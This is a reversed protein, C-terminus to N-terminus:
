SRHFVIVFQTHKMEDADTSYTSCKWNPRNEFLRTRQMHLFLIYLFCTNFWWRCSFFATRKVSIQRSISNKYSIPTEKTDMQNIQTCYFQIANQPMHLVISQWSQLHLSMFNLPLLLVKKEMQKWKTTKLLRKKEEHETANTQKNMFRKNNWSKEENKKKKMKRNMSLSFISFNNTLLLLMQTFYNWVTGIVTLIKNLLTKKTTTASFGNIQSPIIKNSIDIFRLWSWNATCFFTYIFRKKSLLDIGDM